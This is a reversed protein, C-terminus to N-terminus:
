SLPQGSSAFSYRQAHKNFILAPQRSNCKYAFHLCQWALPFSTHSLAQLVLSSKHVRTERFAWKAAEHEHNKVVRNNMTSQVICPITRTNDEQYKWLPCCKKEKYTFSYPYILMTDSMGSVLILKVLKAVARYNISYNRTCLICYWANFVYTRFNTNLIVQRGAKVWHIIVSHLRNPLIFNNM